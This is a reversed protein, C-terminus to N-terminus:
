HHERFHRRGNRRKGEACDGCECKWRIVTFECPESVNGLRDTAVIRIRNRGMKLPVRFSWNSTGEVVGQVASARRVRKRDRKRGLPDVSVVKYEVKAIGTDDQARGAIVIRRKQTVQDQRRRPNTVTIIPTGPRTDAIFVGEGERTTARFVFQHLDNFTGPGAFDVWEVEQGGSPTDITMGSIALLVPGGDARKIWIGYRSTENPYWIEAGFIVDGTENIVVKDFRGFVVGEPATPVPDGGAVIRQLSGPFGAFVAPYYNDASAVWASFAVRGNSSISPVTSLKTLHGGGGPAPWNDRAVVKLGGPKGAYIVGVPEPTGYPVPKVIAKFALESNENMDVQSGAGYDYGEEYPTFIEDITAGAPFDPASDGEALVPRLDNPPGFFLAGVPHYFGDYQPSRVVGGVMTEAKLALRSGSRFAPRGPPNYGESTYANAIQNGLQFWVGSRFGEGLYAEASFATKGEASVSSLDFWSFKAASESDLPALDGAAAVISLNGLKGSVEVATESQLYGSFAVTGDQGIAPLGFGLFKGGGPAPEGQFALTQYTAGQGLAQSIAGVELLASIAFLLTAHVLRM